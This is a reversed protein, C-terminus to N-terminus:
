SGEYTTTSLTGDVTSLQLQTNKQGHRVLNSVDVVGKQLIQSLFVQIDTPITIEVSPPQINSFDPVYPDDRDLGRLKMMTTVSKMMIELNGDKAAIQFIKMTYEHLIHRYGEKESKSIDGFLNIANRIDRYAQAQSIDFEKMLLPIAQQPSHYNCLLAFAASWRQRIAEEKSTLQIKGEKDVYWLFIKDFTTDPQLRYTTKSM